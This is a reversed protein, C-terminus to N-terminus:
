RSEPLVLGHILAELAVDILQPSWEVDPRTRHLEVSGHLLAWFVQRTTEFNQALRGQQALQVIPGELIERAVQESPLQALDPDRRATLLQYHTPNEIGWRAFATFLQRVNVVPDSGVPVSRMEEVLQNMRLEVLTDLLGPKDGFYHYITPATYGCRAALKRMSFHEYGDSVLMEESADLITRRAKERQRLRRDSATELPFSSM